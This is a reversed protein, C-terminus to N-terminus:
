KYKNKLRRYDEGGIFTETEPLAKFESLVIKRFPVARIELLVTMRFFNLNKKMEQKEQFEKQLKRAFFFLNSKNIKLFLKLQILFRDDFFHCAFGNRTKFKIMDRKCFKGPRLIINRTNSRGMLLRPNNENSTHIIAFRGDETLFLGNEEFAFLFEVSFEM